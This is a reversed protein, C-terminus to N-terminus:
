PGEELAGGAGDETPAPDDPNTGEELDGNPGDGEEPGEVPEEEDGEELEEEDGEELEEEEIMEEPETEGPLPRALPKPATTDRSTTGTRGTVRRATRRAGSPKATRRRAPRRIDKKDATKSAGRKTASRKAARATKKFPSTKRAQFTPKSFSGRLTFGAFGETDVARKFDRSDIILSLSAKKVFEDSLKFRIHLNPRWRGAQDHLVIHGTIEGEIDRGSFTLNKFTAKKQNFEVQGGFRDIRLAPVELDGMRKTSIKGPGLVVQTLNLDADGLTSALRLAGKDSRAVEGKVTLSLLGTIPMPLLDRLFTLQALDLDAAEMDVTVSEPDQSFTGALTGEMLASSLSGKIHGSLAEMPEVTLELDTIEMPQPGKPLPPLEIKKKEVKGRRAKATAGAKGIKAVGPVIAPDAPMAPAEAAEAAEAEMRAKAEKRAKLAADMAQQEEPTPRPTIVVNAAKLTSVGSLSLAEIELDLNYQDSAARVLFSKVEDMPLTLYFFLGFAGLFFLTYGTYKLFSKLLSSM